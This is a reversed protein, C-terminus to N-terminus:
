IPGFTCINESPDGWWDVGELIDNIDSEVDLKGQVPNEQNYFRGLPVDQLNRLEAQSPDGPESLESLDPLTFLDPTTLLIISDGLNFLETDAKEEGPWSTINRRIEKTKKPCWWLGCWGRIWGRFVLDISGRMMTLLLKADIHWDV